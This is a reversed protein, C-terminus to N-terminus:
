LIAEFLLQKMCQCNCAVKDTCGFLLQLVFFPQGIILLHHDVDQMKYDHEHEPRSVGVELLGLPVTKGVASNDICTLRVYLSLM